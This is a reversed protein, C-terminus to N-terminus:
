NIWYVKCEIYRTEISSYIQIHTNSFLYESDETAGAWWDAGRNEEAAAAANSLPDGTFALQTSITSQTEVQAKEM